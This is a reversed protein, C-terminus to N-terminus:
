YGGMGDNQGEVGKRTGGNVGRGGEVMEGQEEAGDLRIEAVPPDEMEEDRAFGQKVDVGLGFEPPAGGDQYAPPDDGLDSGAYGEVRTSDMSDRQQHDRMEISDRPVDTMDFSMGGYGTAVGGGGSEAARLEDAFLLNDREVFKRLPEPLGPEFQEADMAADSAYVLLASSHELEVARLVDFDDIKQKHLEPPAVEARYEIRWWQARRGESPPADDLQILDPDAAPEAPLLVYTTNPKTAVGRLTYHHQQEEPQMGPPPGKSMASIAQRTKEREDRLTQLKTEINSILSELKQAIAQHHPPQEPLTETHNRDNKSADLLNQGTYYGLTHRLMHGTDMQENKKPHKWHVLKDEIVDMKAMRRKGNAMEARTERVAEVHEKMYKDIYLEAPVEVRLEKQLGPNAQHLRMVLVDGPREIWNDSMSADDANTEWLLDDLREHLDTKQGKDLAVELDILTLNPDSMGDMSNTGVTTSFVKSVDGDGGVNSSAAISWTTLFLELMTRSHTVVPSTRRLLEAQTLAGVSGYSRGSEALFAMLRQAEAFFEDQHDTVEDVAYGDGVHVIRPKAIPHGRWWEGDRGYEGQVWDRMLLAERAAPVVGCITLFNPLYDGGPMQKLLRPEGEVLVRKEADLDPIVEEAQGFRSDGSTRVTMGWNKQDYEERKAPGFVPKDGGPGVVGTEQVRQGFGSDGRLSMEIGRQMQEDEEKSSSPMISGTPSNPRTAAASSAGLSRFNNDYGGDRDASM